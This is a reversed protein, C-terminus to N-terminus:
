PIDVKELNGVFRIADFKRKLHKSYFDRMWIGDSYRVRNGPRIDQHSAALWESGTDTHVE